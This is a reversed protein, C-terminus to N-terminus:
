GQKTEESDAWMQQDTPYTSPKPSRPTISVKVSPEQDGTGELEEIQRTAWDIARRLLWLSLGTTLRSVDVHSLIWEIARASFTMQESSM